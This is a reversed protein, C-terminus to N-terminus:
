IEWTGPIEVVPLDVVAQDVVEPHGLRGLRVQHAQSAARLIAQVMGEKVMTTQGLLNKTM